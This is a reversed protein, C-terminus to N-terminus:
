YFGSAITIKLFRYNENLFNQFDFILIQIGLYFLGTSNYVIYKDIRVFSGTLMYLAMKIYTGSRRFILLPNTIKCHNELFNELSLLNPRLSLNESLNNDTRTIKELLKEFFNDTIRLYLHLM